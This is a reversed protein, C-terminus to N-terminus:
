TRRFRLLVNVILLSDESIREIIMNRRKDIGTKAANMLFKKLDGSYSLHGTAIFQRGDDDTTRLSKKELVVPGIKVM